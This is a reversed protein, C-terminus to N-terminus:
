AQGKVEACAWPARMRHRVRRTVPHRWLRLRQGWWIVDQTELGCHVCRRGHAVPLYRHRM